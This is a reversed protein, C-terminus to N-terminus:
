PRPVLWCPACLLAGAKRESDWQTYNLNRNIHLSSPDFKPIEIRSARTTPLPLISQSHSLPVCPPWWGAEQSWEAETQLNHHCGLGGSTSLMLQTVPQLQGGGPSEAREPFSPPSPLPCRTKQGLSETQEAGMDWLGPNQSKGWPWMRIRQPATSGQGSSNSKPKGAM